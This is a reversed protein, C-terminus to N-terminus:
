KKRIIIKMGTYGQGIETVTIKNKYPLIYTTNGKQYTIISNNVIASGLNKGTNLLSGKYTLGSKLNFAISNRINSPATINLVTKNGKKGIGRDAWAEAVISFLITVALLKKTFTNMPILKNQLYLHKKQKDPRREDM